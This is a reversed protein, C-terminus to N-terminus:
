YENIKGLLDGFHFEEAHKNSIKEKLLELVEVNDKNHLSFYENFTVKLSIHGKIILVCVIGANIVFDGFKLSFHSKFINGTVFVEVDDLNM